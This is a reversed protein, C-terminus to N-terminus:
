KTECRITTSSTEKCETTTKKSQKLADAAAQAARERSANRAAESQQGQQLILLQLLTRREAEREEPSMAARRRERAEEDRLAMPLGESCMRSFLQDPPTPANAIVNNFPETYATDEIWLTGKGQKCDTIFASIGARRDKFAVLAKVKVFDVSVTDNIVEATGARIAARPSMACGSMLVSTAAGTAVIALLRHNM